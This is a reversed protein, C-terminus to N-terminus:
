QITAPPYYNAQHNSVQVISLLSIPSVIISLLVYIHGKLHDTQLYKHQSIPTVQDQGDLFIMNKNCFSPIRGM